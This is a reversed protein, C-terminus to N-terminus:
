LKDEIMKRIGEQPNITPKWGLDNKIKSIDSIWIDQDGHRKDTFNLEAKKGTLEEIYTIAELLSMTNETGGGINYPKGKVKDINELYNIIDQKTKFKM